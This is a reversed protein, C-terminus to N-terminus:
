AGADSAQMDRAIADIRAALDMDKETIGGADHTTLRITVRSYVNAIEPHHNAKEAEIGVRVLFALASSFDRFRLQREIAEGHRSWGQLDSLAGQVADDTLLQTM